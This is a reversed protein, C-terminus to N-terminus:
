TIPPWSPRCAPWPCRGPEQRQQANDGTVAVYYDAGANAILFGQDSTDQPQTGDNARVRVLATNGATEPGATWAYSGRGSADMALGHGGSDVFQWQRDLRGPEGDTRARRRCQGLDVRHGVPDRRRGDSEGTGAPHRQRRLSDRRLEVGHGQVAGRGGCLHRLREAGGVRQAERRVEAPQQQYLQARCLAAPAHVDRRAGAACLGAQQGCWIPCLRVDSLGGGACSEGCRQHGRRQQLFQQQLRDDPLRERLWDGVATTGGANILAVTQRETLGSTRWQITVPQGVEFKELGNPSVCRCRKRATSLAAQPTNGDFGLNIRGGNPVPESLYYSAPDGADITPSDSAVHFNDDTGGHGVVAQLRVADAVVPYGYESTSKLTVVVTGSTVYILPLSKWSVGADTFDSPPTVDPRRELHYEGPCNGDYVQYQAYYTGSTAPWTAAVQYFQGPTLGSFTWTAQSSGGTASKLSSSGYGGDRAPGRAPRASVLRATIWTSPRAPRWNASDWYAM